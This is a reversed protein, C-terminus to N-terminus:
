FDKLVSACLDCLLVCLKTSLQLIGASIAPPFVPSGRWNAAHAVLKVTPVRFGLVLHRRHQRSSPLIGGGAMHALSLSYALNASQPLECNVTVTFVSSGGWRLLSPPSKESTAVYQERAAPVNGFSRTWLSKM